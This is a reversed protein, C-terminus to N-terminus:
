VKAPAASLSRAANVAGLVGSVAGALPIVVGAVAVMATIIKMFVDLATVEAPAAAEQLGQVVMTLREHTLAPDAMAEALEATPLHERLALVEDGSLDHNRQIEALTLPM